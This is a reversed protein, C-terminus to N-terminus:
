GDVDRRGGRQYDEVIVWTAANRGNTQRVTSEQRIVGLHMLEIRRPRVSNPELELGDIIARDTCPGHMKIYELVRVQLSPFKPTIFEAAERSTQSGRVFPADFLRSQILAM